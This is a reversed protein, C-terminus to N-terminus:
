SKAPLDPSSNKLLITGYCLMEACFYKKKQAKKAIYREADCVFVGLLVM